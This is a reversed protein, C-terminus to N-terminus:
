LAKLSDTYAAAALFQASREEESARREVIRGQSNQAARSLGPARNASNLANRRVFTQRMQLCVCFWNNAWGGGEDEYASSFENLDFRSHLTVETLRSFM